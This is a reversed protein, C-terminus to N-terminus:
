IYFINERISGKIRGIRRGLTGIMTLKKDQFFM